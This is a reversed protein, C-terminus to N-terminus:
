KATTVDASLPVAISNTSSIMHLKYGFIRERNHSIGWTSDVDIGPRPVIGKKMSSNHRVRNKYANILTTEVALIYQKVLGDDDSVFLSGM